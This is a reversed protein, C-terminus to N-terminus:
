GSGVFETGACGGGTRVSAHRLVLRLVDGPGAGLALRVGMEQTRRSVSFSMVGYLGIAALFLAAVGFASFLTGFTGYFWTSLAGGAGNDPRRVHPIDADIAAVIERVRSTLALPNADSTRVAVSVVEAGDAGRAPLLRGRERHRACREHARGGRRRRDHALAGDIQEQGVRFRRGLAGGNAFHRRVFSANVIAVPM